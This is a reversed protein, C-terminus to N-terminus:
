LAAAPRTREDSPRPSGADPRADPVRLQSASHFTAPVERRRVEAAEEAWGHQLRRMLAGTSAGRAHRTRSSPKFLILGCLETPIFLKFDKNLGKM